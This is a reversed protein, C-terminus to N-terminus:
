ASPPGDVLLLVKRGASDIGLAETFIAELLWKL